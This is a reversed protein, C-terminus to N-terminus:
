NQPKEVKWEAYDYKYVNTKENLLQVGKETQLKRAISVIAEWYDCNNELAWLGFCDQSKIIGGFDNIRYRDDKKYISCSANKDDERVRFNARDNAQPYFEQIIDLGGNTMDLIQEAIPQLGKSM